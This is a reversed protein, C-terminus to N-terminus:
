TAQWRCLTGGFGIDLHSQKNLSLSSGHLSTHIGLWSLLKLCTKKMKSNWLGHFKCFPPSPLELSLWLPPLLLVSVFQLCPQPLVTALLYDMICTVQIKTKKKKKRKWIWWPTWDVPLLVFTKNAISYWFYTERENLTIELLGRHSFCSGFQNVSLPLATCPASFAWLPFHLQGM